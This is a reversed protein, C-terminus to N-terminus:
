SQKRNLQRRNLSPLCSSTLSPGKAQIRLFGNGDEEEWSTESIKQWGEPWEVGSKNEFDSDIIAPEEALVPFAFLALMTCFSPFRTTKIRNIM